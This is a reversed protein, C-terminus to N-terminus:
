SLPDPRSLQASRAALTNPRPASCGSGGRSTIFPRRGRPAATDYLHSGGRPLVTRRLAAATSRPISVRCNRTHDRQKAYPCRHVSSTGRHGPIYIPQYIGVFPEDATADEDLRLDVFLLLLPNERAAPEKQAVLALNRLRTVEKRGIHALVRHQHHSVGGALDAGEEIDAAMAAIAEAAGIAAIGRAEGAGIVAPGVAIVPAARAHRVELFGILAFQLPLAPAEVRHRLQVIVLAQQKGGKVRLRRWQALIQPLHGPIQIGEEVAAFAADFDNAAHVFPDHWAIPFERGLIEAAVCVVHRPAM